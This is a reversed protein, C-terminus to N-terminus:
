ICGGCSKGRFDYQNILPYLKVLLDQTIKIDAKQLPEILNDPPNYVWNDIPIGDYYEEWIEEGNDGIDWRSYEKETNMEGECEVVTDDITIIWLGYCLTPYEETYEVTINKYM